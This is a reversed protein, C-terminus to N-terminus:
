KTGIKLREYLEQQLRAVEQQKMKLESETNEPAKQVAKIQAKLQTLKKSPVTRQLKAFDASLQNMEGRIALRQTELNQKEEDLRQTETQIGNAQVQLNSISAKKLESDRRMNQLACGSFVVVSLCILGLSRLKM